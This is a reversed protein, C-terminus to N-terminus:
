VYRALRIATTLTKPSLLKWLVPWTLFLLEMGVVTALLGLYVFSVSYWALETSTIYSVVTCCVWVIVFQSFIFVIEYSTILIAAWRVKKFAFGIGYMYWIHASIIITVLRIAFFIISIMWLIGFTIYLGISDSSFAVQDLISLMQGEVLINNGKLSGFFLGTGLLLWGCTNIYYKAMDSVAVYGYRGTFDELLKASDDPDVSQYILFLALIGGFLFIAYIYIDRTTAIRDMMAPDRTPDITHAAIAFIAIQSNDEKDEVEGLQLGGVGTFLDNVNEVVTSELGEKIMQAGATINSRVTSKTVSSTQSYRITVTKNDSDIEIPDYNVPNTINDITKIPIIKVTDNNSEASATGSLAVILIIFILPFLRM